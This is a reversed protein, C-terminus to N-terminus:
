VRKRSLLVDTIVAILMIIGVIIQQWYQNVEAIILGNNILGMFLSGSIAGIITGVGGVFSVGGIVAATIAKLEMGQGTLVAANGFRAASIIGAISALMSSIVFATIKLKIMDIGSLLAANKNRGIYYFQRFLKTKAMLYSFVVVLILAYWVPMQLNLFTKQGLVIFDEPLSNVASGNALVMSFGLYIMGAALTTIFSNVGIKAVLIGNILGMILSILLTIIIALPVGFKEYVILHGCIIGALSMNFGVSLDIEGTILLIAMGIVVIAEISIALLVASFNYFTPFIKPYGISFIICYVVILSVIAFNRYQTFIRFLSKTILEFFSKKAESDTQEKM